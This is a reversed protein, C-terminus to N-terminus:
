TSWSSEGLGNVSARREPPGKMIPAELRLGTDVTDELEVEAAVFEDAEQRRSPGGDNFIPIVSSTLAHKEFNWGGRGM